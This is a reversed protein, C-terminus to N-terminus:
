GNGQEQDDTEEETSEQNEYDDKFHIGPMTAKDAAEVTEPLRAGLVWGEYMVAGPQPGETVDVDNFVLGIAVGNANRYVTGAKVIKRGKADATVGDNSIQRTYNHYKASALFNIENVEENKVFM